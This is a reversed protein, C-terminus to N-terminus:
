FSFFFIWNTNTQLCKEHYMGLVNQSSVTENRDTLVSSVGPVNMELQCHVPVEGVRKQVHWFMRLRGLVKSLTHCHSILRVWAHMSTPPPCRSSRTHTQLRIHLVVYGIQLESSRADHYIRTTFGVLHVLTEFQNKFYFEVNKPCNRQGDVPTKWQVCPFQIHWIEYLNASLKRAPYIVYAM